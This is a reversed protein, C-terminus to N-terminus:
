SKRVQKYMIYRKYTKIKYSTGKLNLLFIQLPFKDMADEKPCLASEWTKEGRFKDLITKDINTILKHFHKPPLHIRSNTHIPKDIVTQIQTKEKLFLRGM